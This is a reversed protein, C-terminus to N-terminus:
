NDRWLDLNLRPIENDRCSVLENGPGPTRYMLPQAREIDTNDCMIRAISSQRLAQLQPESFRTLDDDGREYWFRDGRKLRVFQDGIICKFTPGVLGDRHPNELIGGAFLDIDDVHDYATRLNAVDRSSLWGGQTLDSFGDAKRYNNSASQCVQRYQNYGPIGHERGRQMNLAVLDLGGSAGEVHEFLHDLVDDVFSSDFKPVAVQSQGRVTDEIFGREQLFAGNNFSDILDVKTTNRGRADRGPVNPTILTHAFRFAATAFENTIRPDFDPDYDQSYGSTLPTLGFARMYTPGLLIPLWETFVINQWQAIVIRRAEEFVRDDEWRPNITQLEEAVRNHERVWATHQVTLAAMENVRLDGGVFACGTGCNQIDCSEPERENLGALACTPLLARNRPGGASAAMFAPERKDRVDDRETQTHGYIQTGDLWHTAANRQEWRGAECVFPFVTPATSSRSFHMCRRGRRGWFSDSGLVEIPFCVDPQGSNPTSPYVWDRDRSDPTCCQPTKIPGIGANPTHTVDHDIFQGSQMFLSSIDEDRDDGTNFLTQSVFRASPLQGGRTAERPTNDGRGYTASLLRQFPSAAVGMLPREENNCSGDVTRYRSTRSCRPQRTTTWPCANDVEVSNESDLGEDREAQRLGVGLDEMLYFLKRSSEQLDQDEARPKNFLNHGKTEQDVLNDQDRRRQPRETDLSNSIDRGSLTASPRKLTKPRDSSDSERVGIASPKYDVDNCAFGKGGGPLDCETATAQRLSAFQGM